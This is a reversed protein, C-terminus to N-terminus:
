GGVRMAISVVRDTLGSEQRATVARANLGFAVLAQHRHTPMSRRREGARECTTPPLNAADAALVERATVGGACKVTAGPGAPELALPTVIAERGNQGHAFSQM